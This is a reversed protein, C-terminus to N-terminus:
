DSSSPSTVSIPSSEQSYSSSVNTAGNIDPAQLHKRCEKEDQEEEEDLTNFKSNCALFYFFIKCSAFLFIWVFYFFFFFVVSLNKLM